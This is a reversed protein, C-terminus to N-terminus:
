DDGDDLAPPQQCPVAPHLVVIQMRPAKTGCRQEFWDRGQRLYLIRPDVYKNSGSKWAITDGITQSDQHEQQGSRESQSGSTNMTEHNCVRKEAAMVNDDRKSVVVGCVEMDIEIYGM